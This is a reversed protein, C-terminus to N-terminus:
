HTNGRPINRIRRAGNRVRDIRPPTIRRSCGSADGVPGNAQIALLAALDTKRM